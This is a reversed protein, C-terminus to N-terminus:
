IECKIEKMTQTFNYLHEFLTQYYSTTNMVQILGGAVNHCPLIKHDIKTQGGHMPAYRRPFWGAKANLVM